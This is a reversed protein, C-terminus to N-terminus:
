RPLCRAGADIRNTFLENADDLLEVETMALAQNFGNHDFNATYDIGDLPRFGELNVEYPSNRRLFIAEGQLGSPAFGVTSRRSSKPGRAIPSAAPLM